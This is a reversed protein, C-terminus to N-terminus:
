AIAIWALYLLLAALVVVLVGVVAVALSGAASDRHGTLLHEVATVLDAAPADKSLWGRPDALAAAATASESENGALLLTPAALAVKGDRPVLAADLLVAHPLWTRAAQTAEALGRLRKVEYRRELRLLSELAGGVAPHGVVLLVRPQGIPPRYV